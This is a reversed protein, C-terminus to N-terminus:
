SKGENEIEKNYELIVEELKELIPEALESYYKNFLATINGEDCISDKINWEKWTKIARSLNLEFYDVDPVVLEDKEKTRFGKKKQGQLVKVKGETFKKVLKIDERKALPQIKVELGNYEVVHVPSEKLDLQFSSM